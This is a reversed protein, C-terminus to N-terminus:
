PASARASSRRRRPRRASPRSTASSRTRRAGRRLDLAVPMGVLALGAVELGHAIWFGLDMYGYLLLGAQAAGLSLLGVVVALDAGAALAPVDAGARYVIVALLGLGLALM